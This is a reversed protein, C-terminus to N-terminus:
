TSFLWSMQEAHHIMRGLLHYIRGSGPFLAQLQGMEASKWSKSVGLYRSDLIHHHYDSVLSSVIRTLPASVPSATNFYQSQWLVCFSNESLCLNTHFKSGLMNFIKVTMYCSTWILQVHDKKSSSSEGLNSRSRRFSM